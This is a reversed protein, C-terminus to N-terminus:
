GVRPRRSKSRCSGSVFWLYATSIWSPGVSSLWMIRVMSYQSMSFRLNGCYSYTATITASSPPTLEHFCSRSQPQTRLSRPTHLLRPLRPPTRQTRRRDSRPLGSRGPDCHGEALVRRDAPQHERQEAAGVSVASPRLLDAAVLCR